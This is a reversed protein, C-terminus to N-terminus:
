TFSVCVCWYRIYTGEHIESIVLAVGVLECSLVYIYSRLKHTHVRFWPVIIYNDGWHYYVITIHTTKIFINM